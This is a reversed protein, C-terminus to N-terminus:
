ASSAPSRNARSRATPSSAPWWKPGARSSARSCGRDFRRKLWNACIITSLAKWRRSGKRSRKSIARGSQLPRAGRDAPNACRFDHMVAGLATDGYNYTADAYVIHSGDGFAVGVPSVVRDISCLPAGLGLADGETIFIAYTEPLKEFPDGKKLPPMFARAARPPTARRLDRQVEINCLRGEEGTALIDLQVSRAQLSVLEHKTRVSRVKLSPKGLIARVVEEACRPQGEFFKGMFMDDMLTLKELIGEAERGM